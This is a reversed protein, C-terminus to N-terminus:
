ACDGARAAAGGPPTLRWYREPAFADAYGPGSPASLARLQSRYCEIAARKRERAPGQGLDIHEVGFGMAELARVRRGVPDDPFARYVADEDFALWVLNPHRRLVLVCAEHALGHDPHVLGLSIAVARPTADRVASDLRDAVAERGPSPGYQTDRFELWM